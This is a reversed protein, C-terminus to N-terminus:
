ICDRTTEGNLHSPPYVPVIVMPASNCHLEELATPLSGVLAMRSNRIIFNPLFQLNRTGLIAFCFRLITGTYSTTTGTQFVGESTYLGGSMGPSNPM